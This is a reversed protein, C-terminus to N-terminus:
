KVQTHSCHCHGPGGFSGTEGVYLKLYYIKWEHLPRANDSQQRSSPLFCVTRKFLKFKSNDATLGLSDSWNATFSQHMRANLVLYQANLGITDFPLALVLHLAFPKDLVVYYCHGIVEEPGHFGQAVACYRDPPVGGIRLQGGAV